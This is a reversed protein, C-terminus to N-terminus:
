RSVIDREGFFCGNRVSGIVCGLMSMEKSVRRDQKSPFHNGDPHTHLLGVIKSGQNCASREISPINAPNYQFSNADFGSSPSLIGNTLHLIDNILKGCAWIGVEKRNQATVEIADQILPKIREDFKIKKTNRLLSETTIRNIM